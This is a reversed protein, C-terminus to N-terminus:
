SSETEVEIGGVWRAFLNYLAAGLVGFVFGMVGYIIPACLAFGIGFIAMVGRQAPPLHSTSITMLFAFPIIFLGIVAYILGHIKGASLPAVRKLVRKTRIPPPTTDM